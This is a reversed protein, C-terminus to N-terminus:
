VHFEDKEPESMKNFPWINLSTMIFTIPWIAILPILLLDGIEFDRNIIMKVFRAIYFLFGITYLGGFLGVLFASVVENM